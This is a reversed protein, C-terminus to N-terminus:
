FDVRLTCLDTRTLFLSFVFHQTRRSMMMMMMMLVAIIIKFCFKM